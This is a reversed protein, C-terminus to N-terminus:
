NDNVLGERQLAVYQGYSLGLEKAKISIAVLSTNPKTVVKRERKKAQYEKDKKRNHIKKCEENKCLKAKSNANLFTTGCIVCVRTHMTKNTVMIYEETQKKIIIGGHLVKSLVFDNM